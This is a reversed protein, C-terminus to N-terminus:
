FEAVEDEAGWDVLWHVSEEGTFGGDVVAVGLLVADPIATGGGMLGSFTCSSCFRVWLFYCIEKRM